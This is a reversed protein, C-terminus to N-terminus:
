VANLIFTKSETDSGSTDQAFVVVEFKYETGINGDFYLTNAYTASNTRSMGSDYQDYSVIEDWSSGVKESITISKAGIRSMKGTGRISFTIAFQGNGERSVDIFSNAIYESSRSVSLATSNPAAAAFMPISVVTSLALMTACIRVFIKKM